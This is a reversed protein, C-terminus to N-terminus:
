RKRREPPLFHMDRYYVTVRHINGANYAIQREVYTRLRELPELEKMAAVEEVIDVTNQQTEEILRALLDDKSDIYYYLSGKLIGVANAVDQMSTKSYGSQFFLVSAADLARKATPREDLRAGSEPVINKAM